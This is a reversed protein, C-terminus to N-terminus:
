LDLTWIDTLIQDNVDIGGTMLIYKGMLCSAHKYRVPLNHNDTTM